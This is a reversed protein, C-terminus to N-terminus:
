KRLETGSNQSSEAIMKKYIGESVAFTMQTWCVSNIDTIALLSWSCWMKIENTWYIKKQTLPVPIGHIFIDSFIVNYRDMYLLDLLRYNLQCVHLTGQSAIQADGPCRSVEGFRDRGDILIAESDLAIVGILWKVVMMKLRSSSQDTARNVICQPLKSVDPFFCFILHNWKWGLHHFIRIFSKLITATVEALTM